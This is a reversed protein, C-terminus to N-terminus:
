LLVAGLNIVPLQLQDPIGNILVLTQTNKYMHKCELLSLLYLLSLLHLLSYHTQMPALHLSAM